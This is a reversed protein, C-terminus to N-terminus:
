KNSNWEAVRAAWEEDTDFFWIIGEILGIIAPIGTWCFVIDLIGRTTQGTYFHGIGFDGLLISLLAAVEKKPNSTLDITTYDLNSETLFSADVLNELSASVDSSLEAYEIPMNENSNNNVPEPLVTQAQMTAMGLMVM